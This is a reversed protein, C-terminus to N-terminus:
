RPYNKGATLSALIYKAIMKRSRWRWSPNEGVASSTICIGPTNHQQLTLHLVKELLRVTVKALDQKKGNTRIEPPPDRGLPEIGVGRSGVRLDFSRFGRHSGQIVARHPCCFSFLSAVCDSAFDSGFHNQGKELKELSHNNNGM